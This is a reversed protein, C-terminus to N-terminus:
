MQDIPSKNLWQLLNLNIGDWVAYTFKDIWDGLKIYTGKNYNKIIPQHSHALIVVDYGSQLKMAAFAEYEAEDEERYEIAFHNHSLRSTIRAIAMGLDPHLWRYAAVSWPHRIIRKLMRYGRDRSLLGDGHYIFFRKGHLTIDLEAPYTMVGIEKELFGHLQFDHNGALYYVQIGSNTLTKLQALVPFAQKPIVSRWEFWFDFLDGVIFLHSGNVHVEQFLEILYKLKKDEAIHDDQGLHADSLFYVAPNSPSNV